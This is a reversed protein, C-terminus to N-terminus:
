ETPACQAIGFLNSYGMNPTIRQPGDRWRQLGGVRLYAEVLEWCHWRRDDHWDKRALRGVIALYDYGKGRQLNLWDNANELRPVEFRIVDMRSYRGMFEAFPTSVVGHFARSEIVAGNNLLIGGHSWHRSPGNDFHRVAAGFVNRSRSVLITAVGM